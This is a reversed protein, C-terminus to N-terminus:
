HLFGPQPAEEIPQRGAYGASLDHWFGIRKEGYQWCLLVDKGGRRGLFDCLGIDLDKVQVGSDEIGHIEDQVAEMLALFQGRASRVEQSGDMRTLNEPSPSEGHRELTQYLGRLRARMQLIRGFRGELEPIMANAEEITFYRKVEMPEM